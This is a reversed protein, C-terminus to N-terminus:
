VLSPSPDFPLTVSFSGSTLVNVLVTTRIAVDVTLPNLVSAISPSPSPTRHLHVFSSTFPLLFSLPFSSSSRHVKRSSIHSPALLRAAASRHHSFALLTAM